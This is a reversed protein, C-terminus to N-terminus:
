FALTIDRDSSLILEPQKKGNITVVYPFDKAGAQKQILLKHPSKAKFPLKYKLTIVRTNLPTLTFFGEFVTKGLDEGTKQGSEFGQAEILESGKPVFVRLWDRFVGNLKLKTEADQFYQQPNKYTLTLTVTTTGDSTIDIKQDASYTVWANTKAGAFNTDVVFLYDGETERVRGALNFSEAAAQTKSDVFYLQIHKENFLALGTQFLTGMKSKPQAMVNALVSYMMPGIFSKRQGYNKPQLIIQGTISDWVVPGEVDAFLELEYWVQPCNCRSDDAASFNGFGPVGIPGTIKLLEVLVQTDVTFVGDVAPSNTLQYNPFFTDMSVKFDPSLNQDRMYWYPVKPLYNVIPEPAPIKKTFKADLTYIDESQIVSIKGKDISIVAYATMFGGTARLEADNQFIVLYKRPSDLGLIYPAAELLPAADNTLTSAQDLLSIGTTIQDRIPRGRFNKPYRKPNIQDVEQQAKQLHDGINALQPKLKDLTTIVFNIRDETTKAGDGTTGLGKLGIIDAYPTIADIAIEAAAILERGAALGRQGDLYYNRALPIIKLWGLRSFRNKVNELDAKVVGLQNKTGALDQSKLLEPLKRGSSELDKVSALISKAPLVFGVTLVLFLILLIVGFPVLFKKFKERGKRVPPSADFSRVLPPIEPLNNDNM